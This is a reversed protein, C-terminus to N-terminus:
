ATLLRLRLLFQSSKTNLWTGNKDTQKISFAEEGLRTENAFSLWDRAAQEEGADFYNITVTSRFKSTTFALRDAIVIHAGMDIPKCTQDTCARQNAIFGRVQDDLLRSGLTRALDHKETGM